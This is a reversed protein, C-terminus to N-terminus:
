KNKTWKAFVKQIYLNNIPNGSNNEKYTGSNYAGVAKRIDGHYRKIQKKLYQGAFYANLNPNMLEKAGGKFGLTKATDVKIQCLGLSPSTGDMKNVARPNHSSEVFCLSSLLGDPLQLATTTSAFTIALMLLEM